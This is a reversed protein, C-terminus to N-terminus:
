FKCICIFSPSNKQSILGSKYKRDTLSTELTFWHLSLCLRVRKWTLWWFGDGTQLARLRHTWDQPWTRLHFTDSQVHQWGGSQARDSSTVDCWATLKLGIQCAESHKLYVCAPCARRQRVGSVSQLQNTGSSQQYREVANREHRVLWRHKEAQRICKFISGIVHQRWPLRRAGGCNCWWRWGCVCVRQRGWKRMEDRKKDKSEFTLRQGTPRQGSKVEEGKELTLCAPVEYCSQPILILSM